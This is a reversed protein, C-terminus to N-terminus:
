KQTIHFTMVEVGIDHANVTIESIKCCKGTEPRCKRSKLDGARGATSGAASNQRQIV